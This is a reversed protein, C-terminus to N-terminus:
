SVIWQVIFHVSGGQGHLAEGVRIRWRKVMKTIPVGVDLGVGVSIQDLLIRRMQVSMLGLLQLLLHLDAGNNQGLGIDELLADCGDRLGTNARYRTRYLSFACQRDNGLGGIRDRGNGVVRQEEILQQGVVGGIRQNPVISSALLKLVSQLALQVDNVVRLLWGHKAPVKLLEEDLVLGQLGVQANLVIINAIVVGEMLLVSLKRDLIRLLKEVGEKNTQKKM